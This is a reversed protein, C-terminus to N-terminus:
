ANTTVARAKPKRGRTKHSSGVVDLVHKSTSRDAEAAEARASESMRQDSFHRRAAEDAIAIDRKEVFAMAEKASTAWGDNLAKRREEDNGVIKTCRQNFITIQNLARQYAQIDPFDLTSPEIDMCRMQKTIPHTEAKYLMQPFEQFSTPRVGRLQEHSPKDEDAPHVEAITHDWKWLERGLASDPTIVMPM